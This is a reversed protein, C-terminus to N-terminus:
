ERTGPTNESVGSNLSTRVAPCSRQLHGWAGYGWCKGRRDAMAVSSGAVVMSRAVSRFAEGRQTAATLSKRQEDVAVAEAVATALSFLDQVSEPKTAFLLHGKVQPHLNQVMRQVLRSEPGEFGLIGATAVVAMIYCNLDESPHQFRNLVYSALFRKKVLPPLFTNIIESRVIGWTQNSFVHAGLIQTIRGSTRSVLLPLFEVDTILNLAYVGKVRILFKLSNEPDTDALVPINKISDEVLKIKMKSLYSSDRGLPGTIQYESKTVFTSEAASSPSPLFPESAPWIEKVRRRLDDLTGDTKLGLQSALEELQQM